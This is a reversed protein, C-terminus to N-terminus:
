SSVGDDDDDVVEVDMAWSSLVGLGRLGSLKLKSRQRASPAFCQESDKLLTSSRFVAWNKPGLPRLVGPM